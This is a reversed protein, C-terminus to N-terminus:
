GAVVYNMLALAEEKAVPGQTAQVKVAHLFLLVDASVESLLPQNTSKDDNM